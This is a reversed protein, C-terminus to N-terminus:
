GDSKQQTIMPSFDFPLASVGKILSVLTSLRGYEVMILGDFDVPMALV